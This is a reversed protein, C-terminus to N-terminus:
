VMSLALVLREGHPRAEFYRLRGAARYLTPNPRYTLEERARPDAALANALLCTYAMDIRTHRRYEDRSLLCIETAQSMTGVSCGAFLGFPTPRGAMRLFYQPSALYLAERVEPRRYSAALRAVLIQRAEGSGPGDM